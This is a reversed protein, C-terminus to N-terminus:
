RVALVGLRATHQLVGGLPRDAMHIVADATARAVDPAMVRTANSLFKITLEDVSLPNQPGGRNAMVRAEHVRGDRTTIRLVAPFQNPFVADCDANGVVRVKAALDLYRPDRAHADTFDDLSLGLGGGGLLAAAVTFPGSFQAHYGSQPRAKLDAPEGITRVTPTPVGLEIGTIDALAVSSRLRIAADIGAHTFHNAPYPKYFIDPLCWTDGLGVTLERLDFAGGCFAQYFGFRGELASVPGTFGAAAMQAAVIGAHAAWGCHMRKVSGGARNGEIIGSGMSTAIGLAHGIGDASLGYLKAAMVACALTGCISTAHWGREFFVSNGLARDYGAMGTRICVEYAAAAAAIVDRSSAGTSEGVALAAPVISASPHLVSPLHTDDYDLSHALVGNVFAAAPAPLRGSSGIVTAEGPGAWATAVRTAMGSTDLATAAICIGLTDLVRHTFSEVVPKPLADYTVGASFAALTQLPTQTGPASM